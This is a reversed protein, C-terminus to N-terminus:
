WLRREFCFSRSTIAWEKGLSGDRIVRMTLQQVSPIASSIQMLQGLLGQLCCPFHLVIITYYFTFRYVQTLSNVASHMLRQTRTMEEIRRKVAFGMSCCQKTVSADTEVSVVTPFPAFKVSSFISPCFMIAM